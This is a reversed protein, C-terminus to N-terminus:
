RHYYAFRIAQLIMEDARSEEDADFNEIYGDEDLSFTILGAQGMALYVPTTWDSNGFPRKGSFSEQQLWLTSLLLGLYEGVTAADADNRGIPLHLIQHPLSLELEDELSNFDDSHLAHDRSVTFTMESNSHGMIVVEEDDLCGEYEAALQEDYQADLEEWYQEEMRRELYSAYEREWSDEEEPDNAEYNM